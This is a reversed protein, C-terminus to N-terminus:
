RTSVQPRLESPDLIVEDDAPVETSEPAAPEHGARVPLVPVGIYQQAIHVLLDVASPSDPHERVVRVAHVITSLGSRLREVESAQGVLSQFDADSIIRFVGGKTRLTGVRGDHVADLGTSGATRFQEFSPWEPGPRLLPLDPPIQATAIKQSESNMLTAM